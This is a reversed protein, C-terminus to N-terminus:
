WWQWLFYAVTGGAIALAYPISGVSVVDGRSRTSGGQAAAVAMGLFITKLNALLNGTQQKAMAWCLALVGGALLSCLVVGVIDDGGAFAGVMAMLKVDGAGMLHLLWFPLLLLLGLAIGSFALLPGDMGPLLQCVLGAALGAVILRNPIKRHALDSRVALLLCVGLTLAALARWNGNM